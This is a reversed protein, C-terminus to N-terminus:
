ISNGASAGAPCFAWLQRKYVDLHTYSVTKHSKILKGEKGAHQIFSRLAQHHIIHKM